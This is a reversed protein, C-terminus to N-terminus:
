ARLSTESFPPPQFPTILGMQRAKTIAAARTSVELRLYAELLLNRATSNAVELRRALDSYTYSLL